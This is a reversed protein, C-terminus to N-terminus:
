DRALKNPEFHLLAGEDGIAQRVEALVSVLDPKAAILRDEYVALWCGPYERAHQRLWARERDLSRSREGPRLTVTPPALVQAWHRVREAEPWCAELERVLARAGEVDSQEVLSRLRTLQEALATQDDGCASGSRDPSLLDRHEASPEVTGVQSESSV